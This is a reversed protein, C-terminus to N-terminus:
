LVAVSSFRRGERRYRLGLGLRHHVAHLLRRVQRGLSASTKARECARGERRARLHVGTYRRGRKKRGLQYTAVTHLLARVEAFERRDLRRADADVGDSGAFRQERERSEHELLRNWEM